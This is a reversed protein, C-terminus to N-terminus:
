TDELMDMFPPSSKPVSHSSLATSTFVARAPRGFYRVQLRYRNEKRLRTVAWGEFFLVNGGAVKMDAGKLLQDRAFILADRMSIHQELRRFGNVSDTSSAYTVSEDTSSTSSSSDSSATSEASSTRSLTFRRRSAKPSLATANSLKRQLKSSISMSTPNPPIPPPATPADFTYTQSIDYPAVSVISVGSGDFYAPVPAIEKYDVVEWPAEAPKRSLLPM